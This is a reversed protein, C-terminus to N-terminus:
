LKVNISSATIKGTASKIGTYLVEIGKKLVGTIVTSTNYYVTTKKDLIIFGKGLSTIKGDGQIATDVGNPKITITLTGEGVTGNADTATLTITYTGAVKPTGSLIGASSIALGSPVGTAVIDFPAVGSTILNTAPYVNGVEGGALSNVFTVPPLPAPNVIIDVTGEGITGNADTATLTITYTGETTPTGSLVGYYSVTMGAPVGTAVVSPYKTASTAVLPTAPYATGVEGDALTGVFTPPTLDLVHFYHDGYLAGPPLVSGDPYVVGDIIPNGDAYIGIHQNGPLVVNWNAYDYWITPVVWNGALPQTLAITYVSGPVLSVGLDRYNVDVFGGAYNAPLTIETSHILNAADTGEGAYLSATVISEPLTDIAHFINPNPGVYLGAIVDSSPAIFSQGLTNESFVTGVKAFLPPYAFEINAAFATTSWAFLLIFSFLKKMIFFQIFLYVRCRCYISFKIFAILIIRMFLNKTSQM